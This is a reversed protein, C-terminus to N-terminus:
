RREVGDRTLWFHSDREAVDYALGTIAGGEDLVEAVAAVTPVNDVLGEGVVRGAGVSGVDPVVGDSGRVDHLGELSGGISDAGVVEGNLKVVVVVVDLEESVLAVGRLGEDLIQMVAVDLNVTYSELGM